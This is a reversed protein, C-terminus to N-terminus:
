LGLLGRMEAVMGRLADGCEISLIGAHQEMRQLLSEHPALADIKAQIAAVEAQASALDDKLSM